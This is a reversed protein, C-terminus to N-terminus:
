AVRLSSPINLTPTPPEERRDLIRDNYLADDAV